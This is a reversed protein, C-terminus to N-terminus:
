APSSFRQLSQHVANLKAVVAANLIFPYAHPHGLAANLENAALSLLVWRDIADMFQHDLPPSGPSQVAARDFADVRLHLRRLDLGLRSATHLADEMHLYHAFTEAWDEWPHSSAYSSIFRTAWDPAAGNQHHTALAASYDSREDGFLTRSQQLWAADKAFREWYYHALEHRLHGTLTRYSEGMQEQIFARQAPDAEALNLTILGDAHGTLLPPSGPLPELFDFWVGDPHSHRSRVPLRLRLLQILVHRKAHEAAAWRDSAGPQSLDPTTRTLSCSLCQTAADTADIMWNCQHVTTRGACAKFARGALAPLPSTYTAVSGQAVPRHQHFALLWGRDPLYGTLSGCRLCSTNERFLPAGCTCAPAPDGTTYSTTPPTKFSVAPSVSSMRRMRQVSRAPYCPPIYSNIERFNGCKLM